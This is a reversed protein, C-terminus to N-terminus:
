KTCPGLHPGGRRGSEGARALWPDLRDRQRQRVLQGFELALAQARQIEGDAQLLHARYLREHDRLGDEAHLLLWRAQRPSLIPTPAPPPPGVNEGRVRRGPPGKRGPEPRWRAVFRRVLSAAGQFGRAQLDRWLQLSNHWGEAWRERLHPEYPDLISPRRPSPAREPFSGARLFRRVTKRGIGVERAIQSVLFGQQHLAVVAAYRERRGARHLEKEAEERTAPRRPATLAAPVSTNESGARLPPPTTSRDVAAAAEKLISRKRGLVRELTEGSNMLLHFRDAVQIADPAGQRAGDAYAGGRDRAIFEVGPHANLWAAFSAATRDDLLDVPRHREM